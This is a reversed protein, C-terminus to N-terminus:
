KLFNRIDGGRSNESQMFEDGHSILGEWWSELCDQERVMLDFWPTPPFGKNREDALFQVLQATRSGSPGPAIWEFQEVEDPNPNVSNVSDSQGVLIYDCESEGFVGGPSLQRYLIKEKFSLSNPSFTSLGLEANLRKVAARKIGIENGNVSEMESETFLPHSCCTNAWERPFVIKSVCRKQVLLAKTDRSFLFVSFARHIIGANVADALHSDLKPISGMVNDNADVRILSDGLSARQSEHVRNFEVSFFRSGLPLRRRIARTIALM